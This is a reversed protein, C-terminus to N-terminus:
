LYFDLIVLSCFIVSAIGNTTGFAINVRSLDDPKVIKHQYTLLSLFVIIGLIYFIKLQPFVHSLEYGFWILLIGALVHLATSVRLANKVGLLAPISHLKHNRDFGEDQLAYIIDFGGTWLMVISGLLIPLLSLADTVAIYAGLPAIGLGVGLIIHCLATFRKTFSYGLIVLLAVPSLYFCTINITYASVVFIICSIITLTLAQGPSIVGAPIERIATRPNLKDINRDLYRNFAMAATRASVMCLLVFILVRLSFISGPTHIAIVFSLLAFPLAFITHSFKVLSLYKNITAVTLHKILFLFARNM